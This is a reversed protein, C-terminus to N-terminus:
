SSILRSQRMRRLLAPRKAYTQEIHAIREGFTDLDGQYKALDHLDKLRKVAQDYSTATKEEILREVEKWALHERIALAELQRQRVLETQRREAEKKQHRWTEAAELLASITRPETHAEVTYPQAEIALQHLRRNLLLSLNNEGRSLRVLFDHWETVPLKDIWTELQVSVPQRKKSNQAAVALMAEDIDLFQVFSELAPSLQGLGEPVPPELTEEDIDKAMLANEAAKLWALYLVRGDGQILEERLDILDDLWGEGETWGVQDEDHFDFDVIVHTKDRTTRRDIEESICYRGVHKTDILVHPIRFMLRRSGWNAMYLMADFFDTTLQEPDGRFDGYHYVFSATHSTVQARSSLASVAAKQDATLPHDIARFEYYQYESM